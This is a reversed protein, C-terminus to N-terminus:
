SPIQQANYAFLSYDVLMNGTTDPIGDRSREGYPYHQQRIFSQCASGLIDDPKTSLHKAAEGAVLRTVALALDIAPNAQLIVSLAQALTKSESSTITNKIETWVIRNKDNNKIALFIWSLDDPITESRYLLYGTDGFTISADTNYKVSIDPIDVMMINNNIIADLNTKKKVPDTEKIWNDLSVTDATQTVIFSVMNITPKEAWPFLSSSHTDHLRVRNIKFYFM